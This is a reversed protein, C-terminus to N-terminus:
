SARLGELLSTRAAMRAPLLGGLAGMVVAFLMGWAFLGPTIQFEFAVEAFTAWNFTGTVLGNLPLSLLCGLLGGIVGLFVAELLFSLYISAPEFGLFRLTAIERTRAGVTAYMTNMMSFAAGISMVLALSGGLMQIPRATKTQERYYEAESLARLQRGKDGEIRQILREAAKENEPQITVSCYFSRHFAERAEDADIWIESEYATNAAEFTGVVKWLHKGSRFSEGLQCHTFRSAVKRSVFCERLGRRFMRGELIKIQPRLQLGVPGLGRVQVHAKAGNPREMTILVIVEGSALPDGEPTRRIGELFRTRRV